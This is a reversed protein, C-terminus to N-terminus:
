RRHRRWRGLLGLLRGNRGENEIPRFVSDGSAERSALPGAESALLEEDCILQSPRLQAVNRPHAAAAKGGELYHRAFLRMVHAVGAPTVERLDDEFYVGRTQPGTVIEYSPFYDVYDHADYAIQAAVRLAAKSYVTSVLVSRAEYTAALPVPSVTLIYRLSPNIGRTLQFFRALDAAVEEASFNVFEYRTADFVGAAVGPALPFVSGDDRLRWAETLGLTFVFMDATEILRRVAELHNRRSLMVEAQTALGDPEVRPRFADVYRGDTRLWCVEPPARLGLAEETLQVLQRATYINGYRASYVGYQRVAADQPSLREGAETVHFRYGSSALSKSIHQAFCSGATAIRTDKDIRFRVAHVPDFEVLPASAVSRNWFQLDPLNRYPHDPRTM